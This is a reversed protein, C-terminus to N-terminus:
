LPAACVAIFGGQDIGDVALQLRKRTDVEVVGLGRLIRDVLSLRTQLAGQRHLNEAGVQL